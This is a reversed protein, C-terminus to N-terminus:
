IALAVASGRRPSAAGRLIGTAPDWSVMTVRGSDWPGALSVAHGRDRLAAVTGPDFRNELTVGGPDAGHPAFSSPFATSLFLPAEVAEQLSRGHVAVGLFAQLTWQDQGDGGPTGFALWRGDALRALSPSLTTRPRKRPELRNPHSPLLNFMQLRTGPAFGLGPVLPNSQIWGGSPTAAIMLGDRDAADVHTTDGIHAALPEFGRDVIGGTWPLATAGLGPRLRLSADPGILTRRRAAYDPDLLSAPPAAFGPDGYWAERDAFALKAAEIETHLRESEPLLGLDQGALIQLQQLFVPGQSWFGCKHVTAGFGEAQVAPEWAGHFTELDSASILGRVPAGGRDPHAERFFEALTRAIRGAHFGARGEAAITELTRALDPQRLVPAANGFVSRTSPWRAFVDANARISAALGADVPFGDAALEIAPRLVDSLPLRGHRKLLLLWADVTAPVAASSVGDGPVGAAPFRDPTAAGPSCGQGSIAHVSGDPARVLIPCEGGLSNLHPELV